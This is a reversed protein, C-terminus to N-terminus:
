VQGVPAVSNISSITGVTLGATAIAAQANAQTLGIIAPGPALNRVTVAVFASTGTNGAADRAVASLTHAGDSVLATQWTTQFPAALVETGIPVGGDFFTVGAVGVNDAASAGVLVSGAVIAASLPATLTVTPAAVDATVTITVVGISTQAAADRIEYSFTDTGAFLPAPTYVFPDSGTIRGGNTSLPDVSTLAITNGTDNAVLAAASFTVPTGPTSGLSDPAAVPWGDTGPSPPAYCQPLPTLFPPSQAALSFPASRFALLVAMSLAALPRTSSGHSRRNLQM